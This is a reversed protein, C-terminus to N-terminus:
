ATPEGSPEGGSLDYWFFIMGEREVTLWSRLRPRPMGPRHPANWCIGDAGYRWQHFPCVITEGEVWGRDGMYAYAHPCHADTVAAVGRKTRFLLLERGAHRLPLLVGPALDASPSARM